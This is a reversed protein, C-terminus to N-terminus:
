PKAASAVAGAAAKADEARGGALMNALAYNGEHCAYEYIPQGRVFEYEGSWPTVWTQPDVVTFQYLLRNAAVRTLRETVKLNETAGRFNQNPNYNVTEIVLTDGEWHGISDGYWPHLEKPAHPAGIQVLRTDHIVETEIAVTGKSQVIQYNNNYITPLMVPGAHNAWSTLCREGLPRQEPNDNKNPDPRKARAAAVRATGEPTMAPLRGNAPFRIFSNRPEGAVRAVRVGPDIWGADYGCGAGTFGKGCDMALLEEASLTPDVPKAKDKYFQIETGELKAVEEATFTGREGYQTPRELTSINSNNWFGELDPHGDPGRPAKYTAAKAASAAPKEAALVSGTM